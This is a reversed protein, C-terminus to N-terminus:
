IPPAHLQKRPQPALAPSPPVRPGSPLPTNPHTSLVLFLHFEVSIKVYAVNELVHHLARRRPSAARDWPPEESLFAQALWFHVVIDRKRDFFGPMPNLSTQNAM